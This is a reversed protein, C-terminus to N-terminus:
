SGSFGLPFTSAAPAATAPAAPARLASGKRFFSRGAPREPLADGPPPPARNSPLRTERRHVVELARGKDLLGEERKRTEEPRPGRRGAARPYPM